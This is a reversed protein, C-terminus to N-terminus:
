GMPMGAAAALWQRMAAAVAADGALADGAQLEALVAARREIGRLFAALVPPSPPHSPDDLSM